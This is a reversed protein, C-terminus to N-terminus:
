RDAAADLVSAPEDVDGGASEALREEAAVGHGLQDAMAARDAGLDAHQREITEHSTPSGTPMRLANLGFLRGSPRARASDTRKMAIGPKQSPMSM